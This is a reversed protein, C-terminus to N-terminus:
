RSARARGLRRRVPAPLLRRAVLGGVEALVESTSVRLLGDPVNQDVGRVAVIAASIRRVYPHWFLDAERTPVGYGSWVLPIPGRTLRYRNSTLRLRTLVTLQRYVQLSSYHYYVVPEGAVLLRGEVVDVDRTRVNRFRL